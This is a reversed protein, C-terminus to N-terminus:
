SGSFRQSPSLFYRRDNSSGTSYSQHFHLYLSTNFNTPEFPILKGTFKGLEIVILKIPWRFTLKSSVYFDFTPM